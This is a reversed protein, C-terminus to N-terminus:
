RDPPPQWLEIRNGEPDTIWGFRGEGTEEIREDVTVGELRLAALVADLDAVRYNIMARQESAGLYETGEPFLSWVTTGARSPDEHERWRFVAWGGEQVDIGLHSRYWEGLSAPDRTKLFVGGIGTVRRPATM